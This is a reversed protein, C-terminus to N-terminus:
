KQVLSEAEAILQRCVGEESHDAAPIEQLHGQPQAVPGPRLAPDHVVEEMLSGVTDREVEHLTVFAVEPTPAVVQPEQPPAQPACAVKRGADQAATLLVPDVTPSAGPVESLQREYVVSERYLAVVPNFRPLKLLSDDLDDRPIRLDNRMHMTEYAFDKFVRIGYKQYLHWAAMELSHHGANPDYYLNLLLRRVSDTYCGGCRLEPVSLTFFTRCAMEGHKGECVYCSVRALLVVPMDLVVHWALRERVRERRAEAGCYPCRARAGKDIVVDLVLHGCDDRELIITSAVLPLKYEVIEMPSKPYPITPKM